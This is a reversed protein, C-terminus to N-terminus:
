ANAATRLDMKAQYYWAPVKGQEGDIRVNVDVGLSVECSASGCSPGCSTVSSILECHLRRDASCGTTPLRVDRVRTFYM